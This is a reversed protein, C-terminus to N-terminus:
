IQALNKEAWIRKGDHLTSFIQVYIHFEERCVSLGRKLVAAGNDLSFM